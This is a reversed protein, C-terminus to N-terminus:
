LSHNSNFLIKVCNSNVMGRVDLSTGVWCFQHKSFTEVLFLIIKESVTDGGGLDSRMPM